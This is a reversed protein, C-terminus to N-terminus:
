GPPPLPHSGLFQDFWAQINSSVLTHAASWRAGSYGVSPQGTAYNFDDGTLATAALTAVADRGESSQLAGGFPLGMADSLTQQFRLARDQLYAVDSSSLVSGPTAYGQQFGPQAQLMPYAAYGYQGLAGARAGAPVRHMAAIAFLPHMTTM